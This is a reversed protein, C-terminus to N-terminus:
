LRKKLQALRAYLDRKLLFAAWADELNDFYAHMFDGSLKNFRCLHAGKVSHGTCEEFLHWYAAIQCLHDPYLSGTKWDGICYSNSGDPLGIADITGGFKHQESVLSIESDLWKINTGQEWKLYAAYSKLAIERLSATEFEDDKPETRKIAHEVLKHGIEGAKAADDRVQRYDLGDIGLQWAWHILGGSDQGIKNVTTVSPVRTGDQTRYIVAPM